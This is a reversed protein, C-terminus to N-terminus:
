AETNREDIELIKMLDEKGCVTQSTEFYASARRM